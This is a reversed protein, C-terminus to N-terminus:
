EALHLLDFEGRTDAWAVRQRTDQLRRAAFFVAAVLLLFWVLVRPALLFYFEFAALGQGFVILGAAWAATAFILNRRGPLWSCTFPVTHFGTALLEILTAAAVTVFFLHLLAPGTDYWILAFVGPLLIAPLTFCWLTRKVLSSPDADPDCAARFIWNAELDAPIGFALRLGTLLSYLITLNATLLGLPIPQRWRTPSVASLFAVTIGIGLITAFAASEAKDGPRDCPAVAM